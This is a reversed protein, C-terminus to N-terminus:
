CPSPFFRHITAALAIQDPNSCQFEAEQDVLRLARPVKHHKLRRDRRVRTDWRRVIMTVNILHDVTELPDQGKSESALFMLDSGALTQEHRASAHVSELIRM